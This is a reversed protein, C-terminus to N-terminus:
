PISMSGSREQIRSPGDTINLRPVDSIIMPKDPGIDRSDLLKPSYRIRRSEFRNGNYAAAPLLVYNSKSWNAFTFDISISTQPAAGKKLVFHYEVELADPRDIPVSTQRDINWVGSQFTIEQNQSPGNVPVLLTEEPRNYFDYNHRTFRLSAKGDIQNLWSGPEKPNQGIGNLLLGLILYIIAGFKKVM